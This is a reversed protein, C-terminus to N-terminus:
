QGNHVLKEEILFRPRARVETYIGGIFAGIIGMVVLQVGSFLLLLTVITTFGSPMTRDVFYVVVSFIMFLFAFLAFTIGAFIGFHLPKTSHSLIGSMALQWLRSYSYKTHGAARREAVYEIGVQKFGIWSFLGRLFMNREQFQTAMIKAVRASIIRFDAANANIPTDTLSSLMRYFQTSATRRFWGIGETDRRVTYVVDCGDRLHELLKPIIEPPHQLDSDMMIIADSDLSDEIGALIAMQHGFRASLALVKAKPDKAVIKRLEDLTNDTCKDVVFLIYSDVESIADLVSRTRAHFKAIVEEENYVPTVVTLKLM